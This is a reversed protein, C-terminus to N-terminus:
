PARDLRKEAAAIDAPPQPFSPWPLTKNLAMSWRTVWEDGDPGAYTDRIAYAPGDAGIPM